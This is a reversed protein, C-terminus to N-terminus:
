KIFMFDFDFCNGEKDAGYQTITEIGTVDEKIVQDPSFELSLEYTLAIVKIDVASLAKYDGTEKAIESVKNISVPKPDRFLPDFISFTM